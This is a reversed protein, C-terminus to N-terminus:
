GVFFRGGIFRTKSRDTSQQYFFLALAVPSIRGLYMCILIVIQGFPQLTPTVGRSLGVTGTASFVEFMADTLKLGEACTLALTAALSLLLSAAVIAVAKRILDSSIRRRFANADKLGGIYAFACLILVAITSTKVGGATGMPSGGIFMWICGLLVSGDSLGAQPVSSFGATRYTVSQFFANLIRTGVPMEGFTKPNSFEFLLTLGAGLLILVSSSVLVLRTHESFGHFFGRMGFRGKRSNKASSVIDFWVIYGLGGLVILLMTVTLVYPDNRYDFLSDPGILDLGANCFASISHFVSFWVGKLFGYRPIFAATYLLAGVGEIAFVGTVVRRLFHRVGHISELDFSDRLLARDRMSFSKRFLLLISASVAVIGLGGIQILVLIVIKGFLTWHLYTDVVVLGTVCVSTTATFLATLFSTSEGEATSVPLLLLVTGVLIVILFGLPIIQSSSLGKKKM